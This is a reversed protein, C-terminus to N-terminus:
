LSNWFKKVWAKAAEEDTQKNLPSSAHGLNVFKPWTNTLVLYKIEREAADWITDKFAKHVQIGAAIDDAYGDQMHTEAGLNARGMADLNVNSKLETTSSFSNKSDNPLVNDFPTANDSNSPTVSRPKHRYLLDAADEFVDQM